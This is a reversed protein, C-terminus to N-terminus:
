DHTRERWMFLTGDPRGVDTRLVTGDLLRFGLKISKGASESGPPTM